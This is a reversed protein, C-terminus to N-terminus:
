RLQKTKRQRSAFFGPIAILFLLVSSPLPASAANQLNGAATFRTSDNLDNSQFPDIAFDITTGVTVNLLLSYNVGIGDATAIHQTFVETNDLFIHGSIGTGSGVTDAKAINGTVIVQGIVDSIWRRVAWHEVAQRGGSTITGNPHGGNSNLSTYFGGIGPQVSWSPVTMLQEM